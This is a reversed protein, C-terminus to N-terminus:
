REVEEVDVTWGRERLGTASWEAYALQDPTLYRASGAAYFPGRATERRSETPYAVHGFMVPFPERVTLKIWKM